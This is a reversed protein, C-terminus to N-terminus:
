QIDVEFERAPTRRRCQRPARCGASDPPSAGSDLTSSATIPWPKSCLVGHIAPCREGVESSRHGQRDGAVAGGSKSACRAVGRPNELPPPDTTGPNTDAGHVSDVYYTAAQCATRCHALLIPRISRIM